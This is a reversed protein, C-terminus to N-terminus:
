HIQHFGKAQNVQETLYAESILIRARKKGEAINIEAERIGSNCCISINLTKEVIAFYPFEHDMLCYM